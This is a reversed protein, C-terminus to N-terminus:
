PLKSTPQQRLKQLQEKTAIIEIDPDNAAAHSSYPPPLHLSLSFAWLIFALILALTVWAIARWFM